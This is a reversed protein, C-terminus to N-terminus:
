QGAPEHPHNADHHQLNRLLHQGNPLGVSHLRHHQPAGQAGASKRLRTRRRDHRHDELGVEQVRRLIGLLHFPIILIITHKLLELAKEVIRFAKFPGPDKMFLVFIVRCDPLGRIFLAFFKQCNSLRLSWHSKPM